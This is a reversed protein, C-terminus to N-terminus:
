NASFGDSAMTSKIQDIYKKGRWMISYTGRTPNDIYYICMDQNIDGVGSMVSVYDYCALYAPLRGTVSTNLASSPVTGQKIIKGRVNMWSVDRGRNGPYNTYGSWIKKLMSPTREQMKNSSATARNKESGFYWAFALLLSIFVVFGIAMYRERASLSTNGADNSNNEEAMLSETTDESM